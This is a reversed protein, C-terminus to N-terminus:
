FAAQRYPIGNMFIPLSVTGLVAIEVEFAYVIMTRPFSRDSSRM